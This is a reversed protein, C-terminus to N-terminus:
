VTVEVSKIGSDRIALKCIPCPFAPLSAGRYDVRAVYLKHGKGKALIIARMEAHLFMKHESCGAKVAYHKQKPHSKEYRPASESVIRGKRDVIVAYIRQKGHEKPIQKAKEIAYDLM